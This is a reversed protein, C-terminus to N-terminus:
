LYIPHISILVFFLVYTAHVVLLLPAYHYIVQQSFGKGFFVGFIMLLTITDGFLIPFYLTLLVMPSPVNELTLSAKLLLLPSFTAILTM